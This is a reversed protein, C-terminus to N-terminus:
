RVFLAAVAATMLCAITGGLLSRLALASLNGRQNPALVSIGGIQIGLSSFNAFGCLAYTAIIASRDDNLTGAHILRGLAEYAVFENAVLKIGLLHGIQMLDGPAAGIIWSLPAFLIGSLFELSLGQFTGGTWTAILPNLGTWSGIWVFTANFLAVFALFTILMAAINLALMLGESTGRSAADFVNSGMRERDFQITADIEGTQPYLIKACVIAAPASMISATLLHRGFLAQSAPDDGGLIWVFAAFVGGAITAMGGTMMCLIESRTMQAIYPKVVLPAETQGVFVNAAAALSEAGSLRMSKQLLWAFAFVVRQLIRLYYLVSTLASFFIVTPLIKFAFILGFRLVGSSDADVRANMENWFDPGAGLFGFVFRTGQDTFGLITVFLTSLWELASVAWGVKLVLAALVIQMAVGSAVLRWDVARRHKSFVWCIALLVCIGFLARFTGALGDM